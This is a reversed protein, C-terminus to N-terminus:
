VAPKADLGLIFAPNERIIVDMDAKSVGAALVATVFTRLGEWPVPNTAQGYDTDLIVNKAGYTKIINVVDEIKIAGGAVNLYCLEIKAGLAVAQKMQDATPKTMNNSAHTWVLRKVGADKAAQLAIISEEPHIHGTLMAVDAKAISKIIPVLDPNIKGDKGKVWLGKGVGFEPHAKAKEALDNGASQTPLKVFRFCDGYFSIAMDVAALNIGGVPYNLSIGGYLEVDPVVQRATYALPHTAIQHNYIMAGRMGAERYGMALSIANVSRRVNDPGFHTHMEFAGAVPNDSIVAFKPVSYETKAATPESAALAAAPGVQSALAIGGLVGATKIFDRRSVSNKEM